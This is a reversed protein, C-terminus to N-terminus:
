EKGWFVGRVVWDGSNGESHLKTLVLGNVHKIIPIILLPNVKSNIQFQYKVMGNELSEKTSFNIGIFSNEFSDLLYKKIDLAKQKPHGTKSKSYIEHEIKWSLFADDNGIRLIRAKDHNPLFIMGNDLWLNLGGDRKIKYSVWGDQCESEGTPVWGPISASYVRYENMAKICSDVFSTPKSMGTWPTYDSVENSASKIQEVPMINKKASNDQWKSYLIVCSILLLFTASAYYLYPLIGGLGSERLKVGGQSFFESIDIKEGIDFSSNTVVKDWDGSYLINDYFYSLSEDKHVFAKDSVVMGNKNIAFVVWYDDETEVIGCVSSGDFEITSILSTQGRKHGLSKDGVAFQEGGIGKKKFFVNSNMLSMSSKLMDGINENNPSYGWLLNVAFFKGNLSVLGIENKGNNM